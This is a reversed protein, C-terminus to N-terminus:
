VARPETLCFAEVVGGTLSRGTGVLLENRVKSAIMCSRRYLPEGQYHCKLIREREGTKTHYVEVNHAEQVFLQCQFSAISFPIISSSLRLFTGSSASLTGDDMLELTHLTAHNALCHIISPSNLSQVVRTYMQRLFKTRSRNSSLDFSILGDYFHLILWNNCVLAGFPSLRRRLIESRELVGTEMNIFRVIGDQDVGLLHDGYQAVLLLRSNNNDNLAQEYLLEGGDTWAQVFSRTNHYISYRLVPNETLLCGDDFCARCEITQVRQKTSLDWVELDRRGRGRGWSGCIGIRDEGPSLALSDNIPHFLIRDAVLAYLYTRMAARLLCRQPLEEEEKNNDAIDIKLRACLRELFSDDVGHKQRILILVAKCYAEVETKLLRNQVSLAVRDDHELFSVVRQVLASPLGDITPAAALQESAPHDDDDCKIPAARKKPTQRADNDNDADGTMAAAEREIESSSNEIQTAPEQQKSSRSPKDSWSSSKSAAEKGCFLDKTAQRRRARRDTKRQTMAPAAPATKAVSSFVVHM